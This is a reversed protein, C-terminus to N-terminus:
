DFLDGHEARIEEVRQEICAKYKRTEERVRERDVLMGNRGVDALVVSARVQLGETLMGWPEKPEFGLAVLRGCLAGWLERTAIVDKVAYSWFGEEIT